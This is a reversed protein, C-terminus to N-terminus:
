DALVGYERSGKPAAPQDTVVVTAGPTLADYLKGAFEPSFSVRKIVSGFEVRTSDVGMWKRAARGPALPSAAGTVGELLTFVHGGLRGKVELAARGIVVGNRYVYLERDAASVLVTIPGQTSREPRWQYEFRALSRRMEPTFDKPALALGPNAAFQPNTNKEDGVIVTGGNQTLSFLLKAFDYPLRICGHSAAYGPLQGSHMAIGSWTLRQM